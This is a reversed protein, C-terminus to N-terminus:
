GYRQLFSRMFATLALCDELGVANYISARLHGADRHGKLGVFGHRESEKVFLEDREADPTRFTVNMMSRSDRGALGEYFGGSEDVTRYLLEAKRRNNREIGVVGGNRRIWKLVLNVIYISFVPPTHFLSGHEAHVRYNLIDPVTRPIGRLLDNRVIVITVGSPGANKQAGAYVLDFRSMDVTRSLLDSSMDAVLPVGGPDPFERFQTGAITENTTMHVYAADPRVSLGRVDPVNRFKDAESSAAVVVDGVKDAEMRAKVSWTGSLVYAATRGEVLLNLPVMAFQTSAGGQLFLVECDSPIDLLERLLQRTEGHITEYVKSRHSIELVSLGTGNLDLLEERVQELVEAPLRAPGANFNYSQAM